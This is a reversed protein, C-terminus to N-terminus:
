SDNRQPDIVVYYVFFICIIIITNNCRLLICIKMIEDAAAALFNGSFKGLRKVCSIKKRM